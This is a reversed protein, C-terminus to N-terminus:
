GLQIIPLCSLGTAMNAESAIIWKLIMTV